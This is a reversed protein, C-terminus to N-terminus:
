EWQNEQALSPWSLSRGARQGPSLVQLADGLVQPQARLRCQENERPVATCTPMQTVVGAHESEAGQVQVAGNMRRSSSPRAQVCTPCPIIGRLQQSTWSFLSAMACACPLLM